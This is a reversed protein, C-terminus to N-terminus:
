TPKESKPPVMGNTDIPKESKETFSTSVTLVNCTMPTVISLKVSSICIGVPDGHLCLEDGSQFVSVSATKM